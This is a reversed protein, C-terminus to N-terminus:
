RYQFKRDGNWLQLSSQKNKINVGKALSIGIGRPRIRLNSSHYLDEFVKFNLLIDRSAEPVMLFITGGLDNCFDVILCFSEGRIEKPFKVEDGFISISFGTGFRFVSYPYNPIVPAGKCSNIMDMDRGFVLDAKLDQLGIISGNYYNLRIWDPIVKLLGKFLTKLFSGAKMFDFTDKQSFELNLCRDHQPKTLGVVTSQNTVKSQKFSLSFNGPATNIEAGAISFPIAVSNVEFFVIGTTLTTHSMPNLNYWHSTSSLNVQINRGGPCKFIPIYFCGRPLLQQMIGNKEFVTLKTQGIYILFFSINLIFHCYAFM